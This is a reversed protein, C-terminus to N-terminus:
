PTREEPAVTRRASETSFVLAGSDRIRRALLQSGQATLHGYDWQVPVGNVTTRCPAAADGCLLRYASVYDAGAARVAAELDRDTKAQDPLRADILLSTDRGGSIQALLRPLPMSYEVIPGIVVVRGAKGALSRLTREVDPIDTEIWRASLIVIDPRNSQLFGDLAMNVLGVCTREGKGALVPKCGTSTAQMVNAEPFAAKLGSWLHAGHSDGVLLINPKGPVPQLCEGADFDALRNQHGFLFCHGKRYFLTDDYSLFSALKDAATGTRLSALSLLAAALILVAAAIGTGAFL